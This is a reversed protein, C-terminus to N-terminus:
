FRHGGIGISIGPGFGYGYGYGMGTGFNSYGMGNYGSGYYFGGLNNSYPLTRFGPQTYIQGLVVPPTNRFSSYGSYYGGYGGPFGPRYYANYGGGYGAGYGTNCHGHHGYQAQASSLGLGGVMLGLALVASLFLNRM